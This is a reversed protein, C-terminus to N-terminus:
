REQRIHDRRLVASWSRRAPDGSSMVCIGVSLLGIVAWRIHVIRWTPSPSTWLWQLTRPTMLTVLCTLVLAAASKSGSGTVGYVRGILAAIMCGAATLALLEITLGGVPLEALHGGSWAAPVAIAMWLGLTALTTAAIAVLRRVLRGVPTSVTLVESEDELCLAATAALIVADLRLLRLLDDFSDTSAVGVASALGAIGASVCLATLPLRRAVYRVLQRQDVTARVMVVIQESDTTPCSRSPRSWAWRDLRCALALGFALWTRRDRRHKLVAIAVFLLTLAVLYGLHWWPTSHDFGSVPLDCVDDFEGCGVWPGNVIGHALLGGGGLWNIASTTTGVYLGFFLLQVMLFFPTPVIVLWTPVWRVLAVALTTVALVAIPGQLMQAVNPRPIDIAAAGEFEFDRGLSAGPRMFALMVFTGVLVLVTPGLNALAHAMTRRDQDVAMTSLLEQTHEIRERLVALVVAVFLVLGPVVAGYGILLLLKSLPQSGIAPEGRTAVTAWWGTLGLAAWLAPNRVLREGEARALCAVPSM